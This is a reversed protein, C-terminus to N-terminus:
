LLLLFPLFAFSIPNFAAQSIAYSKPEIFLTFPIDDYQRCPSFKSNAM